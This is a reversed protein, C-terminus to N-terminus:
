LLNIKYLNLFKTGFFMVKDHFDDQGFKLVKDLYNGSYYLKLSYLHKFLLKILNVCYQISLKFVRRCPIKKQNIKFRVIM